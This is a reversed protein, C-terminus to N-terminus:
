ERLRLSMKLADEFVHDPLTRSTYRQWRSPHRPADGVWWVPLNLKTIELELWDIQNNFYERAPGSPPKTGYALLVASTTPLLLEMHQRAEAWGAPSRGLNAVEGSRYSPFAFINALTTTDFQLLERALAIRACTRAGSTQSPPNSGIVLLHKDRM